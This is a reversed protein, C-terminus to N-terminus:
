CTPMIDKNLRVLRWFINERVDLVNNPMDALLTGPMLDIDITSHGIV